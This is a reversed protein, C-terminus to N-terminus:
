DVSAGDGMWCYFLLLKPTAQKKEEELIVFIEMAIYIFCLFRNYINIPM